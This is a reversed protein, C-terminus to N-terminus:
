RFHKNFICIGPRCGPDVSHSGKLIPCMKVMGRPSKLACEYEFTMSKILKDLFIMELDVLFCRSLFLRSLYARSAVRDLFLLHCSWNSMALCNQGKQNHTKGTLCIGGKRSEQFSAFCWLDLGTASLQKWVGREGRNSGRTEKGQGVGVM